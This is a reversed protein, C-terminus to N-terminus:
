GVPVDRRLTYEAELAAAAGCFSSVGPCVEYAIGKKGRFRGDAGQDRRVLVRTARTCASWASRVKRVGAEM